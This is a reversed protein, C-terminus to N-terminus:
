VPVMSTGPPMKLGADRWLTETSKRSPVGCGRFHLVLRNRIASAIGRKRLESVM